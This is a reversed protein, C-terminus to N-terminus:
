NALTDNSLITIEKVIEADWEGPDAVFMRSFHDDSAFGLRAEVCAHNYKVLMRPGHM